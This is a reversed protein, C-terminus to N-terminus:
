SKKPNSVRTRRKLKAIAAVSLRKQDAAKTYREIETLTAHGSISQLEKATGGSEALRRLVAKRLGHPVCEPGLGAATAARKMLYTLDRRTIPQGNIAGILHM